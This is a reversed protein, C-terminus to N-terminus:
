RPVARACQAVNRKQSASSTSKASSKRKARAQKTIWALLDRIHIMGRPDDLNDAYVPM